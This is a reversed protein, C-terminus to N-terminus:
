AIKQYQFRDKIYRNLYIGKAGSKKMAQYVSVPVDLYDYISGSQFFVRLVSTEPYYIMNSIVTSPM